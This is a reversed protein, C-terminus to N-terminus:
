RTDCPKEKTLGCLSCYLKDPYKRDTWFYHECKDTDIIGLLLEPYDADALIERYLHPWKKVAEAYLKHYLCYDKEELDVYVRVCGFKEKWSVQLGAAELGMGILNAADDIGLWDVNKDGWQHM